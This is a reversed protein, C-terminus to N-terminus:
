VCQVVKLWGPSRAAITRALAEISTGRLVEDMKKRAEAFIGSVLCPDVDACKRKERQCTYAPLTGDIAEVVDALNIQGADRALTFGGKVGRHSAVLGARAMQQFVKRLYSEPVAIAGAISGLMVAQPRGTVALYVLGHIAYEISASFQM